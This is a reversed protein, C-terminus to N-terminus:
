ANVSKEAEALAAFLAAEDAPASGQALSPQGGGRGGLAELTSKLLANMDQELDASRAFVVSAREGSSGLLAVVHNEGTLKSALLKLDNLDRGRFIRTIVKMGHNSTTSEHLQAAEFGILQNTANKLERQLDKNQAQTRTFVDPIEEM